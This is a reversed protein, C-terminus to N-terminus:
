THWLDEPNFIVGKLSKKGDVSIEMIDNTIRRVFKLLDEKEYYKEIKSSKLNKSRISLDFQYKGITKKGDIYEEKEFQYAFNFESEATTTSYNGNLSLWENSGALFNVNFLLDNEERHVSSNMPNISNQRLANSFNTFSLMKSNSLILPTEKRVEKKSILSHVMM